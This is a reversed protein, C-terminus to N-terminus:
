RCAGGAARAAGIIREIVESKAEAYDNVDAWSKKALKRKTQEYLHRAARNTQLRNRFTLHREIEACTSSFIHIHVDRAPTRFMRHEHFDPERVRLQYGAQELKTRYSTEVAADEVVLLIDVIPKAGLGTVSTSGIHEIQLATRALAKKIITAHTQFVKPWQPDYPAIEIEGKEIGGILGTREVEGTM